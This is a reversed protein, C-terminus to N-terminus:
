INLSYLMRHDFINPYTSTLCTKTKADSWLMKVKKIYQHGDHSELLRIYSATNGFENVPFLKNVLAAMPGHPRCFLKQFNWIQDFHSINFILVNLGLYNLSKALAAPGRLCQVM